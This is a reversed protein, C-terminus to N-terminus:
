SFVARCIVTQRSIAIVLPPRDLFSVITADMMVYEMM